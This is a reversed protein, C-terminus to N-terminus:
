WGSRPALCVVIFADIHRSAKNSLSVEFARGSRRFQLQLLFEARRDHFAAPGAPGLGMRQRRAKQELMRHCAM